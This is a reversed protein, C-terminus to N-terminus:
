RPPLTATSAGSAPNTSGSSSRRTRRPTSAPRRERVTLSQTLNQENQGDPDSYFLDEENTQPVVASYLIFTGDPSWDVSNVRRRPFIITEVSRSLDMFYATTAGAEAGPTTRIAMVRNRSPSPAVQLFDCPQDSEACSTLREVKSGSADLAFLERAGGPSSAWSGSVFLLVAEASPPRSAVLAAFPNGSDSGCSAVVVLSTAILVRRLM